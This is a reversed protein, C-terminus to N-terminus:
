RVETAALVPGAGDAQIVVVVADPGPAAADMRLPSAGSWDGIRAWSKVVNHYTITRGANEGRKIAVRESPTYRVLQVRMPGKATGTVEASITLRDGSRKVSLAIPSPSALEHAIAGDIDSQRSGVVRARGDVILQPTYIMNDHAASAYARQRMTYAADSFQDKWGLYDWYDVHLSLPILRPDGTMRGLIEDAPPCSSCGQSTFLEVLVGHREEAVLPASTLALAGFAAAVLYKM